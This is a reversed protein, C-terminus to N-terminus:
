SESAQGHGDRSWNKELTKSHQSLTWGANVWREALTWGGDMLTRVLIVTFSRGHADESGM